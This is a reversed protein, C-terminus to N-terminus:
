RIQGFGVPQKGLEQAIEPQGGKEKNKERPGILLDADDPRRLHRGPQNEKEGKRSDSRSNEKLPAAETVIKTRDGAKQTEIGHDGGKFHSCSITALALLIAM